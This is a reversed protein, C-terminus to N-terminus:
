AVINPPNPQGEDKNDLEASLADEVAEQLDNRNGLELRRSFTVGHQEAQSIFSLKSAAYTMRVRPKCTSPSVYVMVTKTTGNTPCRLVVFRAQGEPLLGKVAKLIASLSLSSNESVELTKDVTIKETDVVFSLANLAGRNLEQLLKVGEETLPMTVGPMAVQVPAPEMKEIAANFKENETMLEMRSASTEKKFLSPTIDAVDDVHEKVLHTLGSADLLHAAGSAYLMKVKPKVSDSCFCVQAFEGESLKVIIFAAELKDAKIMDRVKALDDEMNATSAPVKGHLRMVEEDLTVVLARLPANAECFSKFSEQLASDRQFNVSLM